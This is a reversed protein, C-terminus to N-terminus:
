SAPQRLLAALRALSVASIGPTLQVKGGPAPLAAIMAITGEILHMAALTGPWQEAADLAAQVDEDTAIRRSLLDLWLPVLELGSLAPRLHQYSAAARDLDGQSAQAMILAWAFDTNGPHEALADRAM